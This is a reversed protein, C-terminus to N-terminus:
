DNKIVQIAAIPANDGRYGLKIIRLYGGPRGKVIQTYDNYMKQVVESQNYLNSLLYRRNNLSDEKCRTMLSEAFPRLDKAKAETTVIQGHQFLSIALNRLLSLRVKALRGFKRM